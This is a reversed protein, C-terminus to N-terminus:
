WVSTVIEQGDEGVTTAVTFDSYEHYGIETGTEPDTEYNVDNANGIAGELTDISKGIYSEAQDRASSYGPDEGPDSGDDGGNGDDGSDTDDGDDGSDTDPTPTTESYDSDDTEPTATVDSETDSTDLDEEEGDANLGMRERAAELTSIEKKQSESYYTVYPVGDEMRLKIETTDSFDLDRFFCNTESEDTYFIQIDYNTADSKEYYYLARDKDKWEYAGQILDEGWADDSSDAAERIYIESIDLGTNNTLVVDSSTSTKTGLINRIAAKDADSIKEMKVVNDEKAEETPTPTETVVQATDTEEEKNKNCGAAAAMCVALLAVLILYRKKM